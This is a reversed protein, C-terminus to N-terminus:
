NGKSNRLSKAAILTRYVQTTKSAMRSATFEEGVWSHARDGLSKRLEQNRLLSTAAEAMAISDGPGVLYGTGEIVVEPLGGVDTSVVPVGAAMAEVAAIGMAERLTPFLFVDLAPLLQRVDERYGLFRVSKKIKLNTALEEYEARCEGDGFIVFIASPVDALIQHFAHLAHNVGKMPTLRATTGLLPVGPEIALRTRADAKSPSDISVVGNHIISLKAADVGQAIMHRRVDSSVCILHHAPVFSLKGSLGHVTAIAPLKAIRAALAGNVTSTSLHCHVIDVNNRKFERSMQIIALPDVKTRVKVESQAYGLSRVYEGLGRNKFTMFSVNNGVSRLEHSLTLMSSVAGYTSNRASCVQVINM